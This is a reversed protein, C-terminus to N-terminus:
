DEIYEMAGTLGVGRSEMIQEVDHDEIKEICWQCVRYGKWTTMEAIDVVGMCAACTDHTASDQGPDGATPATGDAMTHM